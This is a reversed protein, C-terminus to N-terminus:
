LENNNWMVQAIIRLLIPVGPGVESELEQMYKYKNIYINIYKVGNVINSKISFKSSCLPTYLTYM